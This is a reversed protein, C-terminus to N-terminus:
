LWLYMIWTGKQHLKSRAHFIFLCAAQWPFVNRQNCVLLMGAEIYLLYTSHKKLDLQWIMIDKVCLLSSLILHFELFMMNINFYGFMIPFMSELSALLLGNVWVMIYLWIMYEVWTLCFMDMQQLLLAWKDASMRSLRADDTDMKTLLISDSYFDMLPVQHTCTRANFDGVLLVERSSFFDM